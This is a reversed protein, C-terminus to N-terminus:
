LDICNDQRFVGPLKGTRRNRVSVYILSRINRFVDLNRREPTARAGYENRKRHNFENPGSLYSRVYDKDDKEIEKM